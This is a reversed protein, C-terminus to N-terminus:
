AAQRSRRESSWKEQLMDVVGGYAQEAQDIVQALVFQGDEDFNDPSALLNLISFAIVQEDVLYKAARSLRTSIDLLDFIVYNEIAAKLSSKLEIICRVVLEEFVEGPYNSIGACLAEIEIDFIENYRNTPTIM